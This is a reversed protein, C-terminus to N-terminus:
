CRKKDDKVNVYLLTAFYAYVFMMMMMMNKMLFILNFLKYM